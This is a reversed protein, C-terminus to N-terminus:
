KLEDLNNSMYLIKEMDLNHRPFMGSYLEVRQKYIKRTNLGLCAVFMANMSIEEIKKGNFADIFKLYKKGNITTPVNHLYIYVIFKKFYEIKGYQNSEYYTRLGSFFIKTYIVEYIKRTILYKKRLFGRKIGINKILQMEITSYGRLVLGEKFDKNIKKMVWRISFRNKQMKGNYDMRKENIKYKVFERSLFNYTTKREFYSKDEIESLIMMKEVLDDSAFDIYKFAYEDFRKKMSTFTNLEFKPNNLKQVAIVFLIFSVIKGGKIKYLCYNSNFMIAILIYIISYQFIAYYIFDLIKYRVKKIIEIKGTDTNLYEEFLFLVTVLLVVIKWIEVIKFFGLGYTILYIILIRQRKTFVGYNFIAICALLYVFFINNKFLEEM